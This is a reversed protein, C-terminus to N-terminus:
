VSLGDILCALLSCLAAVRRKTFRKRASLRLPTITPELPQARQVGHAMVSPIGQLNGSRAKEQMDAYQMKTFGSASFQWM